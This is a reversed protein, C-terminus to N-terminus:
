ERGRGRLRRQKQRLMNGRELVNYDDQEEEVDLPAGCHVCFEKDCNSCNPGECNPCKIM